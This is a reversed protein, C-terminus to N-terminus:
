PFVELRQIFRDYVTVLQQEVADTSRFLPAPPLHLAPLNLPRIEPKALLFFVVIAVVGAVLLARCALRLCLNCCDALARGFSDYRWFLIGGQLQRPTKKSLLNRLLVPYLLHRRQPPDSLRFVRLQLLVRVGPVSAPKNKPGSRQAYITGGKQNKNYLCFYFRTQPNQLCITYLMRSFFLLVMMGISTKDGFFM